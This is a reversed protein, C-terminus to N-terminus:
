LKEPDIVVHKIHKRDFTYTAHVKGDAAQIIAPYAYGAARPAVELTAVTRWTVGDDSIALHLPYRVGKTPREPPPATHNYILLQRGDKLTVADTGSNPNPLGSSVLPTWTKGQDLSFTTALVGERTRGITQLRGDRHSLISGQIMDFDGAGKEVPGIFKWTKGGDTSHEFHARWGTPTGEISSASLWSGDALQVPKNKIPGLIGDADPLRVPKSWTKGGDTSTIYEGWWKAPSPGVKFFLVLPGGKPAFLVPNWTPHRTGDPQVGNAVEVAPLWKGGEQRAFWIVVDPNREKTGGFWSAALQGPAVEVITSAHSEKYPADGNILASSLVAPHRPAPPIANLLPRIELSGSFTGKGEKLDLRWEPREPPGGKVWAGAVRNLLRLTGAEGEKAGGDYRFATLGRVELARGGDGNLRLWEVGARTSRGEASFLPARWQGFLASAHRNPLSKGPGYGLWDMTFPQDVLKLGLGLELLWDVDVAASVRYDVALTGDPAIQYRYGVQYSNKEDAQYAVSTNITVGEAAENVTWSLVKAPVNQLFTEWPYVQKRRDLVNLESYTPARWVLPTSAEVLKKGVLEVGSLSGTKPSFTYTVQGVTVTMADATTVVAPTATPRAALVPIEGHQGLRVSRRTLELGSPDTFALHLYYEGRLPRTSIATTPVALRMEAHPPASLALQGQAIEEDDRFLTWRATVTSLDTFDYANRIPILVQEQGPRFDVRDALVRVPAYAAKTEWYDIQPTRDADVIGDTGNNGHSDYIEDKGADSERVLESGERTYKAKDKMPHFVERGNIKRRLGQDAWLWIMGGAGAPHRTLAEWRETQEGFDDGGLAHSYETTIIPRTSRAAFKDYDDAKWYHPALIDVEAPLGADFRFPLLRPRTPDLGKLARLTVLHLASFPDENGVSWVVVSPRNRDRQVTEHMRLLAGEAYSPDSMRDGGFGFPVEEIVYLGHEDCLRVFEEAPPYHATRVANINAAKMLRIDQLWHERTTARGVDPHQDHRAVGRLKVVQGNIRFVGGATSVERFGITDEWAHQVAGDRLLEVRLQYLNPTEATWAAPQVVRMALPADFGNHAGAVVGTFSTRQVEKGDRTRLIARVEFPPSDAFFDAKEHRMVFARVKLTAARYDDDFDTEVEVAQFHWEKPMTELWVSRYIGPLAWDDNADLKFLPTQQRVRVALKNEVGPLIAASADFAFGTFGSDHRGLLKGNLWVEASQWVGDFRLLVRKDKTSTPATFTHRYFGESVTGNVYHPEEFGHTTWNAPVPIPKFASADFKDTYFKGLKDGEDANPAIAFQWTGDLSQRETLGTAPAADAAQLTAGVGLALLGALLYPGVEPRAARVRVNQRVARLDTGVGSCLSIISTILSM